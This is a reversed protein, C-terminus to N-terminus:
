IGNAGCSQTRNPQPRERDSCFAASGDMVAYCVSASLAACSGEVVLCSATLYDGQLLRQDDGLPENAAPWLWVTDSSLAPPIAVITGRPLLSLQAPYLGGENVYTQLEPVLSQLAALREATSFACLSEESQASTSVVAFIFVILARVLCRRRMIVVLSTGSPLFVRSKRFRFGSLVAQIKEDVSSIM